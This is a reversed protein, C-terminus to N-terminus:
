EGIERAVQQALDYLEDCEFLDFAANVLRKGSRSAFLLEMNAASRAASAADILADLKILQTNIRAPANM